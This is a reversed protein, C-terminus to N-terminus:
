KISKYIPMWVHVCLGDKMHEIKLRGSFFWDLQKMLLVACSICVHRYASTSSLCLNNVIETILPAECQLDEM